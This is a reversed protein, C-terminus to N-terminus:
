ADLKIKLFRVQRLQRSASERHRHAVRKARVRRNGVVAGVMQEGQLYRVCYPERGASLIVIANQLGSHDSVGVGIATFHGETRQSQHSGGGHHSLFALLDTIRAFSRPADQLVVEEGELFTWRVLPLRDEDTSDDALVM